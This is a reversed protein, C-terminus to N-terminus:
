KPLKKGYGYKLRETQYELFQQRQKKAISKLAADTLNKYKGVAPTFNLGEIKGTFQNLFARQEVTSLAMYPSDPIMIGRSEVINQMRTIEEDSIGLPPLKVGAKELCILMNVTKIARTRPKDADLISFEVNGSAIAQKYVEVTEM